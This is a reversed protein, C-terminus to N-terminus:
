RHMRERSQRRLAGVRAQGVRGRVRRGRTYWLTMLQLLAYLLICAVAGTGLAVDGVMGWRPGHLATVQGCAFGAVGIAWYLPLLRLPRAGLLAYLLAALLAAVLALGLSPSMWSLARLVPMAADM